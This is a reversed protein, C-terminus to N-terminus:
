AFVERDNLPQTQRFNHTDRHGHSDHTSRLMRLYAKPVHIKQKMVHWLVEETCPPTTLSGSYMYYDKNAPLLSDFRFNKVHHRKQYRKVRKPNLKRWPGVGKIRSADALVGIVAYTPGPQNPDVKTHVFHIELESARGNIKHESGEGQKRGWHMHVQQLAYMGAKTSTKAAGPTRPDFQVSHGTNTFYGDYRASWGSFKLPPLLEDKVASTVINVPSQMGQNGSVCVGGWKTQEDYSFGGGSMISALDKKVSFSSVATTSAVLLVVLAFLMTSALLGPSSRLEINKHGLEKQVIEPDLLFSTALLQRDANQAVHLSGWLHDSWHM